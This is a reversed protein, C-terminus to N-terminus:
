SNLMFEAKAVLGDGTEYFMLRIVNLGALRLWFIM